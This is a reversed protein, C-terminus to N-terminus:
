RDTPRELRHDLLIGLPGREVSLIETRGGRLVQLEVSEGRSGRGTAIRLEGPKFIRERDYVLIADGARLGARAASSGPIVQQVLVRNPTGTGYLFADFLPDGLEARLERELANMERRHRPTFFWGERIAQDQIELKALEAAAWRTRLEEIDRPDISAAALREADFQGQGAKSAPGGGLAPLEEADLAEPDEPPLTGFLGDVAQGLREVEAALALREARDSVLASEIAAEVDIADVLQRPEGARESPSGAAAIWGAVGGGVVAVLALAAWEGLSRSSDPIAARRLCGLTRGFFPTGTRAHRGSPLELPRNFLSMRHRVRRLQRDAELTGSAEDREISGM